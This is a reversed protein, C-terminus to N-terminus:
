KYPEFQVFNVEYRNDVYESQYIIDGLLDWKSSCQGTANSFSAFVNAIVGFYEKREGRFNSSRFPTLFVAIYPASATGALLSAGQLSTPSPSAIFHHTLSITESELTGLGDL